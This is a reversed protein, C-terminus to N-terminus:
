RKPHNDELLPIEPFFARLLRRLSDLDCKYAGLKLIGDEELAPLVENLNQNNENFEILHLPYNIGIRMDDNLIIGYRFTLKHRSCMEKLLLAYYVIEYWPSKIINEQANQALINFIFNKQEETPIITTILMNKQGSFDIEVDEGAVDLISNIIGILWLLNNESVELSIYPKRISDNHGNCCGRTKIGKQWLNLLTQQLIENGESFEKAIKELEEPSKSYFDDHPHGDNYKM